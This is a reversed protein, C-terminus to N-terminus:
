SGGFLEDLEDLAYDRYRGAALQRESRAIQAMMNPDSLIDLTALLSDFKDPNVMIAAPRGNRTIMVREDRDAVADVIRSFKNKAESLPFTKM